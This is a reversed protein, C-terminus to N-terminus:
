VIQAMIAEQDHGGWDLGLKIFLYVPELPRKFRKKEVGRQEYSAAVSNITFLM